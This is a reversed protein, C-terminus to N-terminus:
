NGQHSEWTAYLADLESPESEIGRIPNRSWAGMAGEAISLLSPSEIGRIPNM